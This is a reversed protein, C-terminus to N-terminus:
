AVIEYVSEYLLNQLRRFDGVNFGTFELGYGRASANAIRAYFSQVDRDDFNQSIQVNVLADRPILVNNLDIFMGGLGINHSRAYYIREKFTVKVDCYIARRESWRNEM